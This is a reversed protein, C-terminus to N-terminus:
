YQIEKEEISIYEYYDDYLDQIFFHVDDDEVKFDDKDYKKYHISESLITNKEQEMVEKATKESICPIANFTIEGDVNSEQTVLWIKKM